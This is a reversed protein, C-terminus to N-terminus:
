STSQQTDDSQSNAQNRISASHDRIEDATSQLTAQTQNSFDQVNDLSHSLRRKTGDFFQQGKKKADDLVHKGNTRLKSTGDQVLQNAKASVKVISDSFTIVAESGCRITTTLVAKARNPMTDGMKKLDSQFADKVHEAASKADEWNHQASKTTIPFMIDVNDLFGDSYGDITDAVRTVIGSGPIKLGVGVIPKVVKQTYADTLLYGWRPLSWEMLNDCFAHVIPYNYIHNVTKSPTPEDHYMDNTVQGKDGQQQGNVQASQDDAPVDTGPERSAM